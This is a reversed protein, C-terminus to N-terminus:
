GTKTLHSDQNMAAAKLEAAKKAYRALRLVRLFRLLRLTRLSNAYGIANTDDSDAMKSELALGVIDIMTVALDTLCYPDRFFSCGVGFLRLSVETAFFVTIVYEFPRMKLKEDYSLDSLSVYVTLAVAVVVIIMILCMGGISDLMHLVKERRVAVQKFLWQFCQCSSKRSQRKLQIENAGEKITMKRAAGALISGKRVLKAFKTQSGPEAKDAEVKEKKWLIEGSVLAQGFRHLIETVHMDVRTESVLVLVRCINLKSQVMLMSKYSVEYRPHVKSRMSTPKKNQTKTSTKKEFAPPEFKQIAPLSFDSNRRM